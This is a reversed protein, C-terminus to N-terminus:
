GGIKGTKALRGTQGSLLRATKAEVSGAQAKLRGTSPDFLAKLQATALSGTQEAAQLAATLRATALDTNGAELAALGEEQLKAVEEEGRYRAVVPDRPQIESANQVWKVFANSEPPLEETVVQGNRTYRIEPKIARVSLGAPREVGQIRVLIKSGQGTVTGMPIIFEQPSIKDAQATAINPYVLSVELIEYMKPTRFILNVDQAPTAVVDELLAEISSAMESAAPIVEAGGGTLQSIRRLEEANWQNGVGWAEIQGGVENIQRAVEYVHEIPEDGQQEGDSLLLVRRISEPRQEFARLAFELGRGMSTTGEAKLEDIRSQARRLSELITTAPTPPIIERGYTHFTVVQLEFNEQQPLHSMIQKVAERLARIKEGSMSGSVDLVLSWLTTAGGISRMEDPNPMVDFVFDARTQNAGALLQTETPHPTVHFLAM